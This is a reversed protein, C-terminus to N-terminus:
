GRSATWRAAARLALLLPLSGQDLLDGALTRSASLGTGAALERGLAALDLKVVSVGGSYLREAGTARRGRLRAAPVTLTTLGFFEPKGGREMWRAFGVVRTSGIEDRGIAAEECLEREMGARVVDQLSPGAALDRPELTGSGPPALLLASAANRGSQNVLVLFGDTTFAVTSVGVIDALDSAALMRVHGSGDILARQRLDVSEGTDRRTARLSCLENSCQADFYRVRHLQLPGRPVDAAPLPEDHMGVAAGNFLLRGRARLPLVYPATAKYEPTLRYPQEALRVAFEQDWLADDIGASVLVTGRNPVALFEADPYAAPAPWTQAPFPAAIAAFEYASWRRRLQRVDRVLSLVGLLLALVSLVVGVASPLITVVGLLVGAASVLVPWEGAGVFLAYDAKARAWRALRHV